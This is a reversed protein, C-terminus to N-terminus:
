LSLQQGRAQNGSVTLSCSIEKGLLWRWLRIPHAQQFKQGKKKKKEERAATKATTPLGVKEQVEKREIVDLCDNMRDSMPFIHSSFVFFTFM